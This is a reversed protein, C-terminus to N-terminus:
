GIYEFWFLFVCEIVDEVRDVFFNCIVFQLFFEDISGNREFCNGTGRFVPISLVPAVAHEIIYTRLEVSVFEAFDTVVGNVVIFRDVCSM